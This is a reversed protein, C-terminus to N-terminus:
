RGWTWENDIFSFYFCRGNVNDRIFRQRHATTWDLMNSWSDGSTHVEGNIEVASYRPTDNTTQTM